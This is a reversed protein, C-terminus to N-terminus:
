IGSGGENQYKLHKETDIDVEILIDPKTAMVTRDSPKYQASTHHKTNTTTQQDCWKKNQVREVIKPNTVQFDKDEPRKKALRDMLTPDKSKRRCSVRFNESWRTRVMTM